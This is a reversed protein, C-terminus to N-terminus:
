VHANARRSAKRAMLMPVFIEYPRQPFIRSQSFCVMVSNKEKGFKGQMRQVPATCFFNSLTSWIGEDSAVSAALISQAVWVFASLAVFNLIRVIPSRPSYRLFLAFDKESFSRNERPAAGVALLWRSCLGQSGPCPQIGTRARFLFEVDTDRFAVYREIGDLVNDTDDIQRNM